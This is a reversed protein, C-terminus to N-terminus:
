AIGAFKKIVPKSNAGVMQDAPEGNKFLIMTPISMVKYDRAINPNADVDLKRIEVGDQEKALEDLLPAVKRCPGCWTAWFDVLVPKDSKLVEGEFEDQTVPLAKGETHSKTAAM